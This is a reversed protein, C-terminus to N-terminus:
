VEKMRGRLKALVMMAAIALGGLMLFFLYRPMADWWWDFCKAYVFLVLFASASNAVEPWRRRIGAWM